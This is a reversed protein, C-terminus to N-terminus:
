PQLQAGIITNRSITFFLDRDIEAYLTRVRGNTDGGEYWMKLINGDLIVCPSTSWKRDWGGSTLGHRFMVGKKSWSTKCDDSQLLFLDLYDVMTHMLYYSNDARFVFLNKFTTTEGLEPQPVIWKGKKIWTIGDTSEALGYFTWGPKASGYGKYYMKYENGIKIVTHQGGAGENDWNGSTKRLVPNYPHRTWNIGDQSTAYCACGGYETSGYWMKYFGDDYIVAMPDLKDGEYYYAPEMVVGTKIWNIGDTSTARMIRGIKDKYSQGRYWMMYTDDNLKIVLPSEIGQSDYEGPKGLELVVGYRKWSVNPPQEVTNYRTLIGQSPGSPQELAPNGTAGSSNETTPKNNSELISNALNSNVLFYQCLIFPFVVMIATMIVGLLILAAKYSTSM